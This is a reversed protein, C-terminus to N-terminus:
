FQHVLNRDVLRGDHKKQLADNKKKKKSSANNEFRNFIKKIIQLIWITRSAIVRYSLWVSHMWYRHIELEAADFTRERCLEM